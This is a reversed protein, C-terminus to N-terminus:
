DYIASPMPEEAYRPEMLIYEAAGIGAATAQAIHVRVCDYDNDADLMSADIPILYKRNAVAPMTFTNVGAALDVPLLIDEHTNTGSCTATSGSTVGTLVEANVFATANVTYLLLYSGTDKFVTGQGGGTGNVVEGVDFPASPSTYNLKIGTMYYRTFALAKAGTAAVNKAQVLTVAATGAATRLSISVLCKNYNKMSVYDGPNAGTNLDIPWVAPVIQINNTIM